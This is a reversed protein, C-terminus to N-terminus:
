AHGSVDCRHHSHSLHARGRLWVVCVHRLHVCQFLCVRWVFGSSNRRSQRVFQRPSQFLRTLRWLGADRGNVGAGNFINCGGARGAFRDRSRYFNDQSVAICDHKRNKSCRLTLRPAFVRRTGTKRTWPSIILSCLLLLRYGSHSAASAILMSEPKPRSATWTQKSSLLISDSLERTLNLCNVRMQRKAGPTKNEICCTTCREFVARCGRQKQLSPPRAPM